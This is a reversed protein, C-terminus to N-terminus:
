NYKKALLKVSKNNWILVGDDEYDMVRIRNDSYDSVIRLSEKIHYIRLANVSVLFSEVLPLAAEPCIVRTTRRRIESLPHNKSVKDDFSMARLTTLFQAFLDALATQLMANIAQFRFHKTRYTERQSLKSAWAAKDIKQTLYEIRLDQHSMQNYPDVARQYLDVAELM